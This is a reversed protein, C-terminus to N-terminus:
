MEPKGYGRATLTQIIVAQTDGIEMPGSSEKVRVGCATSAMGAVLFPSAVQMGQKKSVKPSALRREPDHGVLSAWKKAPPMRRFTKTHVIADVKNGALRRRSM